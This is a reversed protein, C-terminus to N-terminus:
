FGMAAAVLLGLASLFGKRIAADTFERWWRTRELDKRFEPDRVM